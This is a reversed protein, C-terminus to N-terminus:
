RQLGAVEHNAFDLRAALTRIVFKHFAYALIPNDAEMQSMAERSLRYAIVPQDVRVSAGRPMTRYLGMEGVLTHRIMSRLRLMQGEAPSYLVSVRGSYLLFMCDATEGQQFMLEGPNYEALELYSVLRTFLDRSGIERTLWEDASRLAEERSMFEVLLKDECWELAGDLDAFARVVDDATPALFGGTRLQREVAPPLGSLAITFTEGEAFHRLKVLSMVATTDIGLVQRFDLLVMRCAGGQATVISKIDVLLRNASGFFVFGHLWMIQIGSGHRQLEEDQIRPRDVRSGYDNRSLGLRVLKVRSSNIAFTVCASIIGVAIGAVFDWRAIVVLIVLVQVYDARQMRRWGKIVWDDVLGWGAQVLMGGLVTVPLYGLVKPGLVFAVICLAAAILGSGRHRAGNAYGSLTRSVSLTGVMGGALGALVNALGNVRLERDVDLDLRAQVEVATTSLLLTIATVAILAVFEGAARLLAMWEVQPLDHRIDPLAMGTGADILWGAARAEIISYGSGWLVLHVVVIGAALLAPFGLFHGLRRVAVLAAGFGLGAVLQWFHPQEGLAGLTEWALPVGTLVRVAGSILLWGSAALFGGIVPYPIYRIWRGTKWRGLQYIAIGVILSGVVLGAEVTAEIAGAHGRSVLDATVISALASLVAVPKSDPGAIAFRIASGLAFVAGVVAAGILGHGIGVARAGLLPGSFILAAYSISTAITVIATVLGALIDKHNM